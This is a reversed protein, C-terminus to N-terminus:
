SGLFSVFQRNRRYSVTQMTRVLLRKFTALEGDKYMALNSQNVIDFKTTRDVVFKQIYKQDFKRIIIRDLNRNSRRFLKRDFPKHARQIQYITYRIKRSWAGCQVFSNADSADMRTPNANSSPGSGRPQAGNHPNQTVPLEFLSRKNIETGQSATPRNVEKSPEVKGVDWLSHNTSGGLGSSASSGMTHQHIRRQISPHGEFM